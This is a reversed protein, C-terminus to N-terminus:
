PADKGDATVKWTDTVNGSVEEIESVAIEGSELEQVLLFGYSASSLPAGGNGSIVHQTDIRKYTHFHGLLELTLPAAHIIAESPAVGLTETVSPPQSARRLHLHDSRRATAHAVGGARRVVRQRRRVGAQGQRAAHRRRHPLVAHHRRGARAAVHVRAREPERQREPLEVRDRGTCEHNGMTHYIPGNTFSAEGGLFLDVQATMDAEYNAFCYDGTGVAFQAGKAQMQAFNGAVIASPYNQTDGPRAPRADGFVAFSLGDPMMGTTAGDVAMGGDPAHGRM